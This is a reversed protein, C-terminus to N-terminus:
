GTADLADLRRIDVARPEGPTNHTRAGPGGIQWGIPAAAVPGGDVDVRLSVSSETPNVVGITLVLGDATLAAVVELPALDQASTLPIEGFEARYLELVLGTTEMEAATR